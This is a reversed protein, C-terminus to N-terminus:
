KPEVTVRPDIQGVKEVDVLFEYEGTKQTKVCVTRKNDGDEATFTAKIWKDKAEKGAVKISVKDYDVNNDSNQDPHLKFLLAEEQKVTTKNSVKLHSDGYWIHVDIGHADECEDDTTPLKECGSLLVTAMLVSILKKM